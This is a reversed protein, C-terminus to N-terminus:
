NAMRPTKSYSWFLSQPVRSMAVPRFFGFVESYYKYIREVGNEWERPLGELRLYTEGLFHFQSQAVSDLNLTM